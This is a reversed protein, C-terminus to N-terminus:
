EPLCELRVPPTPSSCSGSSEPYESAKIAIRFDLYSTGTRLREAWYDRSADDPSYGAENLYTFRVRTRRSEQTGALLDAMRGAGKAEAVDAWYDLEATSPERGIFDYFAFDVLDEPTPDYPSLDIENYLAAQLRRFGDPELIEGQWYAVEGDGAYRDVYDLYAEEIIVARSEMSRGLTALFFSTKAPLLPAWYDVEAQSPTREVFSSYSRCVFLRADGGECQPPLAAGAPPTGLGSGVALAALALAALASRIRM